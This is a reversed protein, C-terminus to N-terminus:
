PSTASHLRSQLVEGPVPRMPAEDRALEELLSLQRSHRDRATLAGHEAAPPALLAENELLEVVARLHEPTYATADRLQEDLEPMTRTGDLLPVLRRAMDDTVFTKRTSSSTLLFHLENEVGKVVIVSDRLAPRYDVM